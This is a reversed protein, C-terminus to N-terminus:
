RPRRVQAPARLVAAGTPDEHHVVLTVGEDLM